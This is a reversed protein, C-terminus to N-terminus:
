SPFRGVVLHVQPLRPVLRVDPQLGARRAWNIMAATGPTQRPVFIGFVSQPERIPAVNVATWGGKDIAARLQLALDRSRADDAAYVIDYKEPPQKQLM